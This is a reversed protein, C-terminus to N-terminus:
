VKLIAVWVGCKQCYCAFHPHGASLVEKNDGFTAAQARLGCEPALVREIFLAHPLDAKVPCLSITAAVMGLTVALVHLENTQRRVM